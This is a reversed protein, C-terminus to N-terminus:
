SSYPMPDYTGETSCAKEIWRDIREMQHLVTPDFRLLDVLGALIQDSTLPLNPDRVPLTTIEGKEARTTTERVLDFILSNRISQAVEASTIHAHLHPANNTM